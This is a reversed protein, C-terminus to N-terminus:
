SADEGGDKEMALLDQYLKRTQRNPKRPIVVVVRLLQSGRSGGHLPPLGKGKLRLIDDPQTGPPVEVAAEGELTPVNVKGGLAARAPGIRLIAILDKGHREFRADPKVEIRVLLDGASAGRAGADGQGRLTLYDGSSVGPPVTFAVRSTEPLRGEGRCEPCRHEVWTGRGGCQPCPGVQVIQGLFSRQVRRVQGRGQCLRCVDAPKGGEAGTGNCTSCPLLRRVEVTKEVGHLVDDLTLRVTEQRDGGRDRAGPDVGGGFMDGFDRMFARLADHLDFEMGFGSGGRLGAHGFRDYVGRKERDSLVEYAETAEKFRAEAEPDDPNRDPHYQLALKRYAKKIEELRAEREVGLVEYYDRAAM